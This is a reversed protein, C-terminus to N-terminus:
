LGFTSPEFGEGAVLKEQMGRNAFPTTYIRRRKRTGKIRHHVCLREKGHPHQQGIGRERARDFAHRAAAIDQVANGVSKFLTIQTAVEAQHCAMSSQGWNLPPTRQLLGADRAKILDGAEEWAAAFQDVVVYARAVTEPPIEQM